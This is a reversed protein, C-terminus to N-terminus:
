HKKVGTKSGKIMCRKCIRCNAPCLKYGKPLDKGDKDIIKFDNTINDKTWGSGNVVLNDIKKFSLDKRATYAYCKIVFCNETKM